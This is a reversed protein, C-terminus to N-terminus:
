RRNSASTSASAQARCQDVPAPIKSPAPAMPAVHFMGLSIRQDSPTAGPNREDPPSRRPAQDKDGLWLQFWALNREYVALRHVPQWKIHHEGPFVYLASPVHHQRLAALTELAGLYEDDSLQMLIPTRIRNANRAISYCDWFAEGEDGRAPYGSRVYSKEAGSGALPILSGPEEFSSSVAAAAFWTSHLLAYQITRTGDSLGTIGIRKPDVVGRGVVIRIGQELSSLVSRLDAWGEMNKRELEDGDRNPSLRGVERPREFSLVAFGNAAFLQIPYEDGTGGRLFGRSDYQVIILPHRQGPRHEPPLVLDGFTEVGRDNRWKLREIKGLELGAFEPNLDIITGIRDNDHLRVLRRPNGSSEHLCILDSRAPQCNALLDDTLFTRRPNGHGPRWVYIGLQSLGWGERRMFRVTQGDDAWWVGVIHTCADTRCVFEPGQAIRAHLETTPIYENADRARTWAVSDRGTAVLMAHPPRKPDSTPDVLQRELLTAQRVNRSGLDVVFYAANLPSYAFPRSSAKPVFRDDFLYGVQAERDFARETDRLGPKTSFIISGGDESWALDEVDIESTTVAEAASGDARARWVQTIGNRRKLYAIWEGDPSWHPTIVKPVGTPFNAIGTRTLTERILEGGADVEILQPRAGITAVYLGLCYQNARPDARRIQFAVRAGDPSVAIASVGDLAVSAPWGVDRLRVLDM